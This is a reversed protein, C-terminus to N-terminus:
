FQQLSLFAIIEFPREDDKMYEIVGRQTYASMYIEPSEEHVAEGMIRNVETLWKGFSYGAPLSEIKQFLAESVVHFYYDGGHGDSMIVACKM